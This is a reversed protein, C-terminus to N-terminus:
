GSIDPPSFSMPCPMANAGQLDTQLQRALAIVGAGMISSEHDGTIKSIRLVDTLCQWVRIMSDTHMNRNSAVKRGADEVAPYFLVSGKYPMPVYRQVADYLQRVFDSEAKTYCLHELLADLPHTTTIRSRITEVMKEWIRGRLDRYPQKKGGENYLWNVMRLVFTKVPNLKIGSNHPAFDVAVLHCVQCNMAQLQQAMEFAIVVGASWGGIILPGEPQFATIERIYCSAINEVSSAFSEIRNRSPARISYFPQSRGLLKALKVPDTGQGTVSHVWYIPVRNGEVNLPAIATAARRLAEAWTADSALQEM